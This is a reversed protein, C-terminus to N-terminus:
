NRGKFAPLPEVFEQHPKKTLYDPHRGSLRFYCLHRCLSLRFGFVFRAYECHAFQRSVQPHMLARDIAQEPFPLKGCKPHTCVPTEAAFRDFPPHTLLLLSASEHGLTISKVESRGTLRSDLAKRYGALFGAGITRRPALQHRLFSGFRSDKPQSPVSCVGIKARYRVFSRAASGITTAPAGNLRYPAGLAHTSNM